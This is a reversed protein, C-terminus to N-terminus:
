RFHSAVEDLFLALTDNTQGAPGMSWDPVILEDLGADAFEGVLDVIQAATGSFSPMRAPPGDAPAGSTFTIMVQSSRAIESPDRGIEECRSDLVASKHRFVEPSCWSNWEDALRAAIRM